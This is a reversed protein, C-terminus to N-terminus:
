QVLQKRNQIHRVALKRGMRGSVLFRAGDPKNAPDADRLEPFLTFIETRAAYGVTKLAEPGTYLSETEAGESLVIEHQDFLFHFYEVTELDRAIDIGEIQLLQKAAVLVENTGFMKQAINSRILIRHQPSVILDRRPLGKGLAGARVRIPHMEPMTALNASSLQRSGTWRLTQLGRDRTMVKMGAALEEVPVLGQETEILTGRAFCPFCTRDTFVRDTCLNYCDKSTPFNVSVIPKSTMADIEAQSASQPPPMLFTNGATDQMIRVTLNMTSTTGDENLFTVTTNKVQFTSDIQYNQDSGSADHTITEANPNGNNVKVVGDGNTDNLHVETLQSYLPNGQEGYGKGGLIQPALEAILSSENSDMDPMNGLFIMKECGPESPGCTCGHGGGGTTGTGNTM